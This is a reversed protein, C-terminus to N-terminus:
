CRAWALLLRFPDRELWRRLVTSLIEFATEGLVQGSTTTLRLVSSGPLADTPVLPQAAISGDSRVPVDPGLPTGGLLLRLRCAPPTPDVRATIHLRTGGPGQRAHGSAAAPPRGGLAWGPPETAPRGAAAWSRNACVRLRSNLSWGTKSDVLLATVDV